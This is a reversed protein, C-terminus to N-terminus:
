VGGCVWDGASVKGTERGWEGRVVVWVAWLSVGAGDARTVAKLYGPSIHYEGTAPDQWKGVHAGGARWDEFFAYLHAPCCTGPTARREPSQRRLFVVMERMTANKLQTTKVAIRRLTIKAGQM